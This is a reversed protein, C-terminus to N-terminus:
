AKGIKFVKTGCTPCTGRTAPRGNKMTIQEPNGIERTARCKVCYAQMIAEREPPETRRIAYSSEDSRVKRPRGRRRRAGEPEWFYVDDGVRKIVLDKGVLKAAAGIRRRVATTTEGESPQLKGAQGSKLQEVYGLYEELIKARKGPTTKMAVEEVTVLEFTPM